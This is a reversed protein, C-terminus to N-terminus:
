SSLCIIYINFFFILCNNQLLNMLYVKIRNHDCLVIARLYKSTEPLEEYGRLKCVEETTYKHIIDAKADQYDRLAVLVIDGLEIWVKHQLAGRIRCLRKKGDVCVAKVRCNGLM